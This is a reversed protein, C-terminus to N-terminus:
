ARTVKYTLKSIMSFMIIYNHAQENKIIHARDAVTREALSHMYYEYEYVIYLDNWKWKFDM